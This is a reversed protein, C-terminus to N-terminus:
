HCVAVDADPFVVFGYTRPPLLLPGGTKSRPRFVPIKNNVMYLSQVRNLLVNKARPDDGVASLWFLEMRSNLSKPFTVSAAKTDLNMAYVTVSGSPYGYKNKNKTCHAYIRINHSGKTGFVINGVLQKYILTLWYDTEPYNIYPEILNHFAWGPGSFDQRIVKKIGSQASLGLKDLWLFGDVYTNTMNMVGHDFFSGTEGLWLPTGAPADSTANRVTDLTVKLRDMFVPDTFDALRGETGNGFYHHFTIADVSRAGGSTLFDRMFSIGKDIHFIDPGLILTDKFYPRKRLNDHFTLFDRGLQAGAISTNYHDPLNIPENGLEFGYIDYGKQSTYDLLQDANSPDWHGDKRQLVSLGFILDWGVEKTFNNIEDWVHGTLVSNSENPAQLSPTFTVGDADTGGIRLICPSFARALTKLQPSRFDVGTQQFGNRILIADFTVGVFRDDITHLVSDTHIEVSESTTECVASLAYLSFTALLLMVVAAM